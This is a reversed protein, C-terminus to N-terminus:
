YGFLDELSLEKVKGMKELEKFDIDDRNGIVLCIYEKDSINKTFFTEFQNIDIEQIESYIDKRIDYDIGRKKNNLYNFFIASKTIRNTAIRNQVAEKSLNFMADTKIMNKLLFNLNETATGLKDASTSIHAFVVDYDDKKRSASYFSYASYALGKAERLEQFIVSSMGTGYYENFLEIFPLQKSNFLDGRSMLYIGAQVIDYNVFYVQYPHNEVATYKKEFENTKSIQTKHYKSITQKITNIEENGYYFLKHNYKLLDKIIATIQSPKISRLEKESLIDKLPSNDAYKGYNILASTVSNKNKKADQRAKLIREVYENYANKDALANELLHHLLELGKEFSNNIGSIYVYSQDDSSNVGFNLGYRFWEKSLDSPSYKKTGLFELYNIALPLLKNNNKGMEVIYYLSFLDNTKNQIHYLLISDKFITKDIEKNYDVFVPDIPTQERSAFEHYFSSNQDRILNVPTIEPKDVKVKNPDAGVMKYIAVYNDTYFNNAFKTIDDKSIKALEDLFSLQEQWEIEHIFNDVFNDVYNISETAKIESLKLNNVSAQIMWEDFNGKKINDIEQLILNELELLSQGQKPRAIFYHMGYEKLFYPNAGVSLVKQKQTLNLDLLGAQGNSLLFDIITIYKVDESKVGGTRYGLVMMEPNPGYVTDRVIINLPKETPHIIKEIERSPKNGWIENIMLATEEIDLDGMMCIAMNNAVYYKNWYNHINVMSPNKLHHAEGLTTQQGYPHTPFMNNLFSYWMQRQDNDQAMNFEEYVAELETHFLRLTLEDFRIKELELYQRINNSPINNIYVTQENSTYANTKDAGISRLLKDLENAAVYQAAIQSISDIAKYILRKGDASTENKHREYLVSITDLLPKELEWNLAGIKSNGKFMLHELYHALGTTEKPDYTSGAKIPIAVQIRPADHNSALYIKLGNELTYIRLGVPDNEVYEYKLGNKDIATKSTYETAKAIFINVLIISLLVTKKYFDTKQIMQIMQIM